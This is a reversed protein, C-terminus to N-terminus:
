ESGERAQAAAVRMARNYAFDSTWPELWVIERLKTARQQRITM